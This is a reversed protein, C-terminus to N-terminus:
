RALSSSLTPALVLAARNQRLKADCEAIERKVEADQGTDDPQAAEELERV